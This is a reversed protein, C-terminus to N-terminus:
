DLLFLDDELKKINVSKEIIRLQHMVNQKLELTELEILEESESLLETEAEILEDIEEESDDLGDAGDNPCAKSTLSSCGVM